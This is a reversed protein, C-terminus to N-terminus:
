NQLIQKLIAARVFVANQAQKWYLAYKTADISQDLEDRRPLAHLVILNQNTAVKLRDITLCFENPTKRSTILTDDRTDPICPKVYVIDASNIYSDTSRSEIWTAPGGVLKAKYFDELRMTDPSALVVKVRFHRIAYVFSHLARLQMNGMCLITLGDLGGFQRYITYIDALAQTPHENNGDGCNIVPVNSITAAREAAGSHPHRIAIVDGYLQLMRTCDEVSEPLLDGSRTVKHDAFGISKGGLRLFASEVSLRTRTSAQFFASVLIKTSLAQSGNSLLRESVTDVYHFFELLSDRTSHELTLCHRIGNYITYFNSM